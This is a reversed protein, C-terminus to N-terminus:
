LGTAQRCYWWRWTPSGLALGRTGCASPVCVPRFDLDDLFAVTKGAGPV